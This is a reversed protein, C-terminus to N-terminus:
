RGHRVAEYVSGAIRAGTAAPAGVDIRAAHLRQQRTPRWSASPTASLLRTLEARLAESIEGPNGTVDHLVLRDIHVHINM